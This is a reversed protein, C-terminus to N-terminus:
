ILFMSDIFDNQPRQLGARRHYQNESDLGRRIDTCHFCGQCAAEEHTGSNEQQCDLSPEFISIRNRLTQQRNFNKRWQLPKTFTVDGSYITLPLTLHCFHQFIQRSQWIKKVSTYMMVHISWRQGMKDGITLQKSCVTHVTCLTSWSVLKDGGCACCEFIWRRWITTQSPHFAPFFEIRILFLFKGWQERSM